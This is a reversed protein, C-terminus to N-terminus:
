NFHGCLARRISLMDVPLSVAWESKQLGLPSSFFMQSFNLRVSFRRTDLVSDDNAPSYPQRQGSLTLHDIATARPRFSDVPPLLQCNTIRRITGNHSENAQRVICRCLLPVWLRAVRAHLWSGRINIAQHANNPAQRHHQHHHCHQALWQSLARAVNGPLCVRRSNLISQM